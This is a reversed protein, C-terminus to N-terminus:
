PLTETPVSCGAPLSPAVGGGSAYVTSAYAQSCPFFAIWGDLVGGKDIGGGAAIAFQEAFLERWAPEPTPQFYRPIGVAASSLIQRNTMTDYPAQPVGAVCISPFLTCKNMANFHNWDQEVLANYYGSQSYKGSTTDVQHGVEHRVAGERRDPFTPTNVPGAQTRDYVVIFRVTSSIGPSPYSFGLDTNGGQVFSKLVKKADNFNRFNYFRVQPNAALANKTPTSLGDLLPGFLDQNNCNWYYRTHATTPLKKNYCVVDNISLSGNFDTETLSSNDSSHVKITEDLGRTPVESVNAILIEGGEGDESQATLGDLSLDTLDIPKTNNIHIIGGKGSNRGNASVGNFITGGTGEVKEGTLTITGGQGTGALLSSIRAAATVQCESTGGSDAGVRDIFVNQGTLTVFGGDGVGCVGHANVTGKVDILDTSAVTIEGGNGTSGIASVDLANTSDGLNVKAANIIIRGGDGDNLSRALLSLDAGDNSKIGDALINITGGTSEDSDANFTVAGGAFILSNQGSAAGPYDINIQADAGNVSLLSTGNNFKLPKATIEVKAGDSEANLTLNGIGAILLQDETVNVPFNDVFHPLAESYDQPDVFISGKPLVKVSTQAKSNAEITLDGALTLKSTALIVKAPREAADALTDKVSITAGTSRIEDGVLLIQGAPATGTGDFVINGKVTVQGTGAAAILSPTGDHENTVHIKAGDLVIDGSPGNTLFIKGTKQTLGPGLDTTGQVTISAAGNTGGGIKLPPADEKGVNAHIRVDHAGLPVPSENPLLEINGADINGTAALMIYRHATLKGTKITFEGSDHPQSLPLVAGGTLAGGVDAFQIHGGNIFIYSTRAEIAATTISGTTAVTNEFASIFVADSTIKANVNITPAQLAVFGEKLQDTTAETKLQANVTISNAADLIISPSGPRTNDQRADLTGNIVIDRAALDIHRAIAGNITITGSPEFPGGPAGEFIQGPGSNDQITQACSVGGFGGCGFESNGDDVPNAFHLGASVVFDRVEGNLGIANVGSLNVNGAALVYIDFGNGPMVATIDGGRNYYIPDGDVKQKIIDLNGERVGISLEYAKLDVQADIRRANISLKREASPRFYKARYTGNAILLDKDAAAIAINEPATVEGAGYVKETYITLSSVQSIITGQNDLKVARLVAETQAPDSSTIIITGKNTLTGDFKIEGQAADIEQTTGEPITVDSQAAQATQIVPQATQAFAPASLSFLTCFM